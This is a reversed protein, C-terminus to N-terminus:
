FFNLMAGDLYINIIGIFAQISLINYIIAIYLVFTSSDTISDSTKKFTDSEPSCQQKLSIANKTQTLYL